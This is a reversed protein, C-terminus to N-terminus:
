SSSSVIANNSIDYVQFAGTASDRLVMDTMSDHNFDGVGALQWNLGVTGLAAANTINNDRIDYVQFAGTTSNRLMMDTTDSGFFGGLTVFTWATGVQGLSYAALIANNGIDYIEYQGAVAASTNAGRLVMDATTGAPPPPNPMPPMLFGHTAGTSNDRLTGVVQ